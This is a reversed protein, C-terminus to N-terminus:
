DLRGISPDSGKSKKNFIIDIDTGCATKEYRNRHILSFAERLEQIGCKRLWKELHPTQDEKYNADGNMFMLQAELTLFDESKKLEEIVVQDGAVVTRAGMDYLMACTQGSGDKPSAALKKRWSTADHMSLCGMSKVKWGNETKEAIILVEFLNRQKKSGITARVENTGTVIQPIFNNTFWLREDFAGAVSNLVSFTTSRFADAVRFLPPTLSSSKLSAVQGFLYGFFSRSSASNVTKQLDTFELWGRYGEATVASSWGTEKFPIDRATQNQAQNEVENEIEIENEVETSQEVEISQEAIVSRGLDDGGLGVQLGRGDTYVTVKEPMPPKPMDDMQKRINQKEMETFKGSGGIIAFAKDKAAKLVDVTDSQTKILGHLKAPDDEMASILTSEFEMFIEIMENVDNASVVLKDFIASWIVNNIKDLYALYNEEVAQKAENHIAYDSIEELTPINKDNDVRNKLIDDRTGETMAFYIQQTTETGKSADDKDGVGFLRQTEKLGRLRFSGQLQRNQNLKRSLKDLLFLGKANKKQPIDAGFYHNEDYYTLRKEMPVSCKEFSVAEAVGSQIIMKKFSGDLNRKYFAVATIDERGCEKCYTLMRRAISENDLGRFLANGDIIATFDSGPSFHAKLVEELIEKPKSSKLVSIGGPPCKKFIINLAEGITGPDWQMKLHAPYVGDNYPTGTLFCGKAFLSAFNHGNGRCNYKWYRIKTAVYERVFLLIAKPHFKLKTSIEKWEEPSFTPDKLNTFNYGPLIKALRKYAKTKRAEIGRIAMEDLVKQCMKEVTLRVEDPNLGKYFYTIFTKIATENPNRIFAKENPNDNGSFPRVDEAKGDKKKGYAVDVHKSFAFDALTELVGKVMAIESFRSSSEIWYPLQNIKGQVYNVFEERNNEQINFFSAMKHGVHATVRQYDSKSLDPLENKRVRELWQQDEAMFRMCMEMMGYNKKGVPSSDGITYNLEEPQNFLVHGEDGIAKGKTRITKLVQKLQELLRWRDGNFLSRTHVYSHLNEFLMLPLALADSKTMNITEGRKLARQMMVYIAEINQYELGAQRNVRLVNTAQDFVAKSQSSIQQINTQALSDPWINFLLQDGNAEGEVANLTPIIFWTKGLSMMLEILVDGEGSTLANKTAEAQKGWIMKETIMEFVIFRRLIRPPYNSFNYGRQVQFEILMKELKERYGEPDKKSDFSALGEYHDLIREMQLMRTWKVCHDMLAMELNKLQDGSLGIGTGLSAFNGKQLFQILNFFSIPNNKSSKVNSNVISMLSAREKELDKKLNDRITLLQVYISWLGEKDKLRFKKMILEPRNAYDHLSKNVRLIREKEGPTGEVNFEKLLGEEQGQSHPLEEFALDFLSKLVGDIREDVQALSSYSPDKKHSDSPAAPLKRAPKLHRRANKVLTQGTTVVRHAYRAKEVTEQATKIHKSINYDHLFQRVNEIYKGYDSNKVTSSELMKKFQGEILPVVKKLQRMILPGALAKGELKLIEETYYVCVARERLEGFFPMFGKKFIQEEVNKISEFALPKSIVTELIGILIQVDRNWGGKILSLLDKLEKLQEPKGAGRAIAYYELFYRKFTKPTIKKIDLPPDKDLVRACDRASSKSYGNSYSQVLNGCINAVDGPTIKLFAPISSASLSFLPALPSRLSDLPLIYDSLIRIGKSALSSSNGYKNKLGDYKERLGPSLRLLEAITDMDAADVVMFPNLGLISSNLDQMFPKLGEKIHYFARRFLFWEQFEDELETLTTKKTSGKNQLDQLLVAGFILNLSSDLSSDSTGVEAVPPFLLRNEEIMAFVRKRLFTVNGNGDDMLLLPLLSKTINPIAKLKLSAELADCTQVALDTKEQLLYNLMLYVLAEFNDSHLRGSSDIDYVYLKSQSISEDLNFKYNAVSQEVFHALPGELGVKSLIASFIPSIWQGPPVLVKRDKGKQLVLYSAIGRLAPDLQQPAIHYGAFHDQNVAQLSEGIKQIKFHLDYPNLRMSDLHTRDSTAFCSVESPQCFREIPKLTSSVAASDVTSLKETGVHIEELSFEPDNDNQMVVFQQPGTDSEIRLLKRPQNTIELWAHGKKPFYKSHKNLQVHQFRKGNVLRHCVYEGYSNRKITITKNSAKFGGNESRQLGDIKLGTQTAIQKTIGDLDLQTLVQRGVTISGQFFDIGVNYQRYIWPYGLVRSWPGDADKKRSIKQAKFAVKTLEKLQKPDGLSKMIENGWLLYREGFDDELDAFDPPDTPLESFVHPVVDKTFAAKILSKVAKGKEETLLSKCDRPYSLAYLKLIVKRQYAGEANSPIVRELSNLMTRFDPFEQVFEPAYHACYDKIKIGVYAIWICERISNRDKHFAFFEKLFEALAKAVMPSEKLQGSLNGVGFLVNKLLDAKSATKLCCHKYKRMYNILRMIRDPNESFILRFQQMEDASEFYEKFKKYEFHTGFIYDDGNSRAMSVHSQDGVRERHSGYVLNALRSSGEFEYYRIGKTRLERYNVKETANGEVFCQNGLEQYLREKLPFYTNSLFKVLWFKPQVSDGSRIPETPANLLHLYKKAAINAQGKDYMLKNALIAHMKLHAYPVPILPNDRNMAMSEIFLLHIKDNESTTESIGLAKLRESMGPASLLERFYRIEPLFDPSDMFLSTESFPSHPSYDFLSNRMRKELEKEGSLDDSLENIKVGPFFYECIQHIRDNILPSEIPAGLGKVFRLFHYANTTYTDNLGANPCRRALRDIIALNSFAAVHTRSLHEAKKMETLEEYLLLSLKSLIKIVRQPDEVQDWICTENGNKKPIALSELLNLLFLCRTGDPRLFSAAPCCNELYTVLEAPTTPVLHNFLIERYYEHNLPINCGKENIDLVAPSFGISSGSNQQPDSLPEIEYTMTQKGIIVGTWMKAVRKWEKAVILLKEARDSSLLCRSVITLLVEQMIAQMVGLLQAYWKFLQIYCEFVPKPLTKELIWDHSLIVPIIAKYPIKHLAISAAFSIYAMGKVAIQVYFSTLIEILFGKKHPFAAEASKNVSPLKPSSLGMGDAVADIFVGVEDGLAWCLLSRSSRIDEISINNQTMLQQMTKILPQSVALDADEPKVVKPQEAPSMKSIAEQVEEYAEKVCELKEPSKARKCLNKAAKELLHNNSKENLVLDFNEGTQFDRCYILFSEEALDISPECLFQALRLPGIDRPPTSFNGVLSERKGGLFELLGGRYIDTVSSVYLPSIQPAFTHFALRHCFQDLKGSDVNVIRLPWHVKGNDDTHYNLAQGTAYILVTFQENAQKEFEVWFEGSSITADLGSMELIESPLMEQVNGFLNKVSHDAVKVAADVPKLFLSFLEKQKKQLLAERKEPDQIESGNEALWGLLDRFQGEPAFIQLHKLVGEQFLRNIHGQFEKPILKPLGNPPKRGSDDLLLPFLETFLFGLNGEGDSDPISKRLEKIGELLKDEIFKVPDPLSEMKLLEAVPGRAESIIEKKTSAPVLQNLLGFLANASSVKRGYNGCFMWRQGTGSELKVVGDYIEKGLANLLEQHLEEISEERGHSYKLGIEFSEIQKKLKERFIIGEEILAIKGKWKDSSPDPVNKELAEKLFKLSEATLEDEIVQELVTSSLEIKSTDRSKHLISSNRKEKAKEKRTKETEEHAQKLQDLDPNQFAIESPKCSNLELPRRGRIASVLATRVDQPVEKWAAQDASLTEISTAFVEVVKSQRHQLSQNRNWWQSIRGHLSDSKVIGTGSLAPVFHKTLQPLVAEKFNLVSNERLTKLFEHTVRLPMM